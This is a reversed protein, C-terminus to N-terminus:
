EFLGDERLNGLLRELFAQKNRPLKLKPENM